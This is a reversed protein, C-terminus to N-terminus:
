ATREEEDRATVPEAGGSRAAAFGRCALVPLRPYRPFAADREALRCLWFVSGRASTVRRAHECAACLGVAAADPRPRGASLPGDV